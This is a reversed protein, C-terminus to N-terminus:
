KYCTCAYKKLKDAERCSLHTKKDCNWTSDTVTFYGASNPYQKKFAEISDLVVQDMLINETTCFAKRAIISDSSLYPATVIKCGECSECTCSCYCSSLFVMLFSLSMLLISKVKLNGFQM